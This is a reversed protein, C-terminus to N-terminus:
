CRLVLVPVDSCSGASGLSAHDPAIRLTITVVAAIRSTHPLLDKVELGDNESGNLVEPESQEYAGRGDVSQTVEYNEGTAVGFTARSGGFYRGHSHPRLSM